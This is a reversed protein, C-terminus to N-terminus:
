TQLNVKVPINVFYNNDIKNTKFHNSSLNIFVLSLNHSVTEHKEFELIKLFESKTGHSHHFNQFLQFKQFRQNAILWGFSNARNQNATMGCDWQVLNNLKQVMLVNTINAANHNTPVSPAMKARHSGNLM